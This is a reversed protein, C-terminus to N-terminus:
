AQFMCPIKRHVKGFCPTADALQTNRTLKIVISGPALVRWDGWCLWVRHRLVVNRLAYGEALSIHDQCHWWSHKVFINLKFIPNEFIQLLILLIQQKLCEQHGALLGTQHMHKWSYESKGVVKRHNHLGTTQTGHTFNWKRLLVKKLVCFKVVFRQWWYAALVIFREFCSVLFSCSLWFSDWHFYQITNKVVLFLGYNTLGAILSKKFHPKRQKPLYKSCGPSM